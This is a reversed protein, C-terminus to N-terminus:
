LGLGGGAHLERMRQCQACGPAGEAVSPVQRDSAVEHIRTVIDNLLVVGRGKRDLKKTQFGLARLLEGVARASLKIPAGRGNSLVEMTKALKGAHVGAGPDGQAEHAHFLLAEIALSEKNTARLLRAQADAARLLTVIERQLEPDNSFCAGLSRATDGIPSSLDPAVFRSKRTEAFNVLRFALLRCQYQEALTEETELNLLPPDHRTPWLPVDLGVYDTSDGLPRDSQLVVPSFPEVLKGSRPVFHGIKTAADLLQLMSASVRRQRLVLTLGFSFPLSLLNSPSVSSLLVGHRCFVVALRMFQDMSLSPPGFVSLRPVTRLCDCVWTMVFYFASLRSYHQELGTFNQIASTLDAVLAKAPGFADVHSPLLLAELFSAEFETPVYTTGQLELKESIQAVKGDFHLLNLKCPNKSGRLLEILDGNPLVQGSTKVTQALSFSWFFVGRSL